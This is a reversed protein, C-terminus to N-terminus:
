TEDLLGRLIRRSRFISGKITGLKTNTEISIEQYSYGSMMLYLIKRDKEKITNIFGHIVGIDNTYEGENITSGFIIDITTSDGTKDTYSEQVGDISLKNHYGYTRRSERRVTDIRLNRMMTTSFTIFKGKSKDFKSLNKQLKLLTDQYLDEAEVLDRSCLKLAYYVLFQSNERVFIDFEGKTM